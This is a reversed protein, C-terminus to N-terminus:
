LHSNHFVLTPPREDDIHIRSIAANDVQLRFLSDIPLKLVDAIIARVVGAHCVILLHEGSHKEVIQRWATSVRSIFANLDEAGQPQNNLPDYMMRKLADPYAHRIEDPTRGEWEGFGIERFCPEIAIPLSLRDALRAAFDHCRRLPSSVIHTWPAPTAVAAEMQQWGKDSLPDDTQGRYRRGGVPEGHRILDVLTM